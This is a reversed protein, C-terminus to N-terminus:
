FWIEGTIPDTKVAFGGEFIGIMDDTGYQEKRKALREKDKKIELKIDKKLKTIGKENFSFYRKCPMGYVKKTIIGYEVLVKIAKLQVAKTLGTNHEVNEVTSYFSGNSQLRNKTKWYRYESYLDCLLLAAELGFIKIMPKSLQIFWNSFVEELEKEKNIVKQQM